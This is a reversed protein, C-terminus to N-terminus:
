LLLSYLFPDLRNDPYYPEGSGLHEPWTEAAQLYSLANKWKGIKM